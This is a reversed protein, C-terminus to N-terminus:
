SSSGPYIERYKKREDRNARRCSIIRYRNERITYVVYYELGDVIGIAVYRTEGYDKRDDLFKLIPGDFVRAARLFSIGHKEINSVNKSSDWEFEM